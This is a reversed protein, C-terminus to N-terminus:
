WKVPIRVTQGAKNCFLLHGNDRGYLYIKRTIEVDKKCYAVIEDIRGERWWKLAQLGDASKETKLCIRALHDLTLRYGLHRHVDELIDLTPLKRHSFNGYGGIVAYDFRKINFGVILELSKLHDILLEIDTEHYVFYNDAKAEYLVACSIGMRHAQGWGGVEEASRRTEIDLVGYNCLPGPVHVPEPLCSPDPGAIRIDPEAEGRRNGNILRYLIFEASAKDIPRNGSGCKPSHVCAPCGTECPCDSIIELTESLLLEAKEFASRCLGIGGPFADYVFVAASGVQPHFPISIGGLDNRDCLMFLPSIGIAAHESAHIGGMFHMQEAEAAKQVAEPITFWFGETEFMQPPLDLPLVNIRKRDRIQLKEYGTVQDTVKLRGFFVRTAGVTKQDYVELIETQKNSRVRTYYHPNARSVTVTCTEPDLRDVRWTEGHHLYIAGPHTERFARFGDVEGMNEGSPGDIINFRSGSGRLDIYRHPAKRASYYIGGDASCLLEGKNELKELCQRVAPRDYMPDDLALPMEAAACVLHKALIEANDPNVMATEPERAIFEDAHRLIYQDLADEGGILIVASDRGSRGVRGGRQRTAMVTGPYGVLICLDLDGIDIGLELASTSIVALLEGSMLQAEIQRREEALFGARYASIRDAFPGKGSGAWMAILETMKRSQSYVITRLRRHLAAKLLLIATHPPGDVPNIFVLHRHGEPAGTETIACVDLGTLNAALEAPNAITASSFIFVPNAGYEACIRRFRRLVQAMHSGLVGRYTHVEDIIVYRLNSFFEAWKDHHPLFGLHLMEPNTLIVNPPQERIKKRRWASTDGDYIAATPAHGYCAAAAENFARLQDQALAKLPFLYLARAAPDDMIRDLVPLNYVLTKGSSTPTAVVVHRGARIESIAAQQHSYLATVGMEKLLSALRDSALASIDAYVAARKELLTHYVVQHGLRKSDRLSRIYEEVSGTLPTEM